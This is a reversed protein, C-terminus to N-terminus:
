VAFSLVPVDIELICGLLLVVCIVPVICAAAGLSVCVIRVGSCVLRLDFRGIGYFLVASFINHSQAFIGKYGIVAHCHIINRTCPVIRRFQGILFLCIIVICIGPINQYLALRIRDVLCIIIDVAFVSSLGTNGCIICRVLFDVLLRVIGNDHTIQDVELSSIRQM